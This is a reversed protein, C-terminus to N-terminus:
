RRREAGSLFNAVLRPGYTSLISEPHFQVGFTPHAQHRLAMLTGDRAHACARLPTGRLSTEEVVLSHYRTAAFAPPMGSFLPSGDHRIRSTKGHVIHPAGVVRAGFAAAIAQHGLCVGLIPIRGSLASVLEMSAGASEPRGPGPSIVVAAPRDRLVDAAAVADNRLVRVDFGLAGILQVLNFTFSDYNDVVLIRSM